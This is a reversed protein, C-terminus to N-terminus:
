HIDLIIKWTSVHSTERGWYDRTPIGGNRDEFTIFSFDSSLKILKWKNTIEKRDRHTTETNTSLNWYKKGSHAMNWKFLSFFVTLYRANFLVTFMCFRCLPFLMSSIYVHSHQVAFYNKLIVYVCLINYTDIVELIIKVNWPMWFIEQCSFM